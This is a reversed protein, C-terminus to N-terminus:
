IMGDKHEFGELGKGHSKSYFEWGEPPRYLEVDRIGASRPPWPVQWESKAWQSGAMSAAPRDKVAGFKAGM